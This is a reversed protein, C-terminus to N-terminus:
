PTKWDLIPEACGSRSSRRAADTLAVAHGGDDLSALPVTDYGRELFARVQRTLVEDREDPFNYQQPEDGGLRVQVSSRLVDWSMEGHEGSVRLRRRPARSTYDLRLSIRAGEPATWLLDASEDADIGLRGSNFLVAYVTTPRGFVWTAYDIEHALDRLVGGEAARAAYSKRYDRDPRWEPLYSQCEIRAMDIQGLDRLRGRLFGLGQAFRLYFAVSARNGSATAREELEAVGEAFPALPKEILVDGFRLLEAADQLHRSTDTAVISVVAGERRIEDVSGVAEFGDARLKAVRSPRTPVGVARVRLHERLIRLYRSGMSGTGRVVVLGDFATAREEAAQATREGLRM